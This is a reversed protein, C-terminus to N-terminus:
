ALYKAAGPQSIDFRHVYSWDANGEADWWWWHPNLLYLSQQSAYVMETQGLITTRAPPADPHVLDLSAVTAFGLRVPANGISFQTCDYPVDVTEGGALKRRAPPLWSSLPAARILKENADELAHTASAFREPDKWVDGDPWWKIGAPWRAPDTLVVYVRSGVRRSHWSNGPLWVEGTVDLTAADISTLKTTSPGFYGCMFSPGSTVPCLGMGTDPDRAPPVASLVVIRGSDLYMGTPWGEIEVEGTVALSAAPWSGAAFLKGGSLAFIRTGD